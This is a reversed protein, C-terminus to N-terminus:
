SSEGKRTKQSHHPFIQICQLSRIDLIVILHIMLLHLCCLFGKENRANKKFPDYTHFMSLKINCLLIKPHETENQM